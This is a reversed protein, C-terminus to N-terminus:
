TTVKAGFYLGTILVVCMNIFAVFMTDLLGLRLYLVVYLVTILSLQIFNRSTPYNYYAQLVPLLATQPRNHVGIRALELATFVNIIVAVNILKATPFDFIYLLLSVAISTYLIVTRVRLLMMTKLFTYTRSGSLQFAIDIAFEQCSYGSRMPEKNIVEEMKLERGKRTVYGVLALSYTKRLKTEAIHKFPKKKGRGSVVDGVAHTYLFRRENQVVVVWHKMTNSADSDDMSEFSRGIHLSQDTSVNLGVFFRWLVLLYPIGYLVPSWLGLIVIALVATRFLIEYKYLVLVAFLCLYSLSIALREPALGITQMALHVFM